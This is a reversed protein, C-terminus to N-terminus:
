IGRKSTFIRIGTVPRYRCSIRHRRASSIGYGGRVVMQHPLSYAFGVRPGFDKGTVHWMPSFDAIPVMTLPNPIWDLTESTNLADSPPAWYSWNLGTNMTLSHTAKWNHQLYYFLRWQRAETLPDGEPSIFDAPVGLMLDAGDYGGENAPAGSAENATESGDFTIVGYPTNSTDANDQVHRVDGGVLVTHTGHTWTMNDVFQYTKGQDQGIGYDSGVGLM